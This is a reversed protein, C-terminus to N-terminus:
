RKRECANCILGSSRKTHGDAISGHCRACESAAQVTGTALEDEWRRGDVPNLWSGAHPIFELEKGNWHKVHALLAALAAKKEDSTLRMWMKFAHAKKIKRPYQQWFESFEAERTKEELKVVEGM